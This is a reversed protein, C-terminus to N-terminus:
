FPLLDILYVCLFPLQLVMKQLIKKSTFRHHSTNAKISKEIGEISSLYFVAFLFNIKNKSRCKTFYKNIFIIM